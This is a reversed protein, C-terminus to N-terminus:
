LICQLIFMWTLGLWFLLALDDLIGGYLKAYLSRMIVTKADKTRLKNMIMCNLAYWRVSHCSLVGPVPLNGQPDFFIPKGNTCPQTCSSLSSLERMSRRIQTLASRRKTTTALFDPFYSLALGGNIQIPGKKRCEQLILNWDSYRLRKFIIWNLLIKNTYHKRYYLIKM